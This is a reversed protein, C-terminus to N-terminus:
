IFAANNVFNSCSRSCTFGSCAGVTLPCTPAFPGRPDNHLIMTIGDAPAGQLTFSVDFVLNLGPVVSLQTAAYTATGGSFQALKNMSIARRGQLTTTWNADSSLDWYPSDTPRMLDTVGAGTPICTFNAASPMTVVSSGVAIACTGMAWFAPTIDTDPTFGAACTVNVNTVGVDEVLIPQAQMGVPLNMPTCVPYSGSLTASTPDCSLLTPAGCFGPQCRATYVAATGPIWTETINFTASPAYSSPPCRSHWQVNSIWLEETSGGTASSFGVWAFGKNPSPNANIATNIDIQATFTQVAAGRAVTYVLSNTPFSGFGGPYFALTHTWKDNLSLTVPSGFISTSLYTLSPSMVADTAGSIGASAAGVAMRLNNSSAANYTVMAM